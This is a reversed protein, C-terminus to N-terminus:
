SECRIDFDVVAQKLTDHYHGWFAEGDRPSVAWTVYPSSASGAGDTRVALVIFYNRRLRADVIVAGNKLTDGRLLPVTDELERPPTDIGMFPM